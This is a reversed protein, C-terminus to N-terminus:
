FRYIIYIYDHIQWTNHIILPKLLLLYIIISLLLINLLVNYYNFNNIM